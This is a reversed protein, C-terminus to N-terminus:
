EMVLCLMVTDAFSCMCAQLQLKITMSAMRPM